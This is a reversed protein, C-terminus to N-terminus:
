RKKLYLIKRTAATCKAWDAVRLGIIWAIEGESVLVTIGKKKLLPIKLDILFDSIKKSNKM